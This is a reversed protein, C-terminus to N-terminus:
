IHAYRASVSQALQAGHVATDVRHMVWEICNKKGWEEITHVGKEFQLLYSGLLVFLIVVLVCFLILGRGGLDGVYPPPSIGVWGM